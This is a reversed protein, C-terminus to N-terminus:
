PVCCWYVLACALICVAVAALGPARWKPVLLWLTLGTLASILLLLASADIVLRWAPGAETGRHLEAMRGAFGHVEVTVSTEGGALGISAQSRRGPSKFVVELRGDQEEFSDVAGTAGFRARLVEVVALKDLPALLAQPIRGEVTTLRPEAFGFWEEHNLMIGTASFFVLTLLGLMSLYIHLSRAWKKLVM